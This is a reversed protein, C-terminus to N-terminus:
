APVEEPPAVTPSPDSTASEEHVSQYALGPPDDKGVIHECFHVFAVMLAFFGVITAIYLLDVM